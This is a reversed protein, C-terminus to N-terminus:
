EIILKGNYNKLENLTHSPIFESFPQTNSNSLGLFNDFDGYAEILYYWDYNKGRERDKIIDYTSKKDIAFYGPHGSEDNLHVMFRGNHIYWEKNLKEKFYTQSNDYYYDCDKAFQLDNPDLCNPVECYPFLIDYGLILKELKNDM